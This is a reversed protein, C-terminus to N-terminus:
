NQWTAKAIIVRMRLCHVGPAREGGEEAGPFSAVHPPAFFVFVCLILIIIDCWCFSFCIHSGAWVKEANYGGKDESEM